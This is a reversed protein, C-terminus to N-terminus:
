VYCHFCSLMFNILNSSLCFWQNCEHCYGGSYGPIYICVAVGLALHLHATCKLRDRLIANVIFERQEPYYSPEICAVLWQTIWYYSQAENASVIMHLEAETLLQPLLDPIGSLQHNTSYPHKFYVFSYIYISLAHM